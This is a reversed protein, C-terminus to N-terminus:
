RHFKGLLNLLKYSLYSILIIQIMDLVIESIWIKPDNYGWVKFIAMFFCPALIKFRRFFLISYFVYYAPIVSFLIVGLIGIEWYAHTATSFECMNTPIGTVKASGMYMGMSYLDGESSCPVPKEPMLFRPIPAYLSNVIPKLGAFRGENALRLLGVSYRTLAGFRYDIEILLSKSDRSGANLINNIKTSLDNTELGRSSTMGSQMVALFALIVVSFIFYKKIQCKNFYYVCFMLWLIPWFVKGRISSLFATALYIISVIIALCFIKKNFFKKNLAVIYFCSVCGVQSILPKIMWLNDSNQFDSNFSSITDVIAFFAFIVLVIYIILNMGGKNDSLFSLDSKNNKCLRYFILFYIIHSIFEFVYISTIESPYVKEYLDNEWEFIFRTVSPLLYFLTIRMKFILFVLDIFFSNSSTRLCEKRCNQGYYFALRLLLLSIIIIIINYIISM